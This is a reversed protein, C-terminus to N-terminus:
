TASANNDLACRPMFSRWCWWWRWNAKCGPPGVTLCNVELVSIFEGEPQVLFEKNQLYSAQIADWGALCKELSFCCCKELPPFFAFFSLFLLCLIRHQHSEKNESRHQGPKIADISGSKDGRGLSKRGLLNTRYLKATAPFIKKRERLTSNPNLPQGGKLSFVFCFCFVFFPLATKMWVPWSHTFRQLIHM